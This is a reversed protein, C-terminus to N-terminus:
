QMLKESYIEIKGSATKLPNAIPDQRFAELAVYASRPPLKRDVIGMDNTEAFSPLAPNNAKVQNYCYEI